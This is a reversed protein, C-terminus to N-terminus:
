QLFLDRDPFPLEDLMPPEGSLVRQATSERVGLREPIDSRWLVVGGVALALVVVVGVPYRSM